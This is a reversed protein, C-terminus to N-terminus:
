IAGAPVTRDKGNIYVSLQQIKAAALSPFASAGIGLLAAAGIMRIKMTNKMSEMAINSIAKKGETTQEPWHSIRKFANHM